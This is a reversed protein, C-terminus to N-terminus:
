ENSEKHHDNSTMERVSVCVFGAHRLCNKLAKRLRIFPPVDGSDPARFTAVFSPQRQPKRDLTATTDTCKTIKTM